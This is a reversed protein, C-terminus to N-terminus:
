NRDSIEDKLDEEMVARDRMSEKKSRKASVDEVASPV